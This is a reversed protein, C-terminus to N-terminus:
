ESYLGDSHDSRAVAARHQACGHSCTGLLPFRGRSQGLHAMLSFMNQTQGIRGSPIRVGTHAVRGVDMSSRGRLSTATSQKVM